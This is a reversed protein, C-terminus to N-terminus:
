GGTAAPTTPPAAPAAEPLVMIVSRLAQEVRLQSQFTAIREDLSGLLRAEDYVMTVGNQRDMEAMTRALGEFYEYLRSDEEEVRMRRIYPTLLEWWFRCQNGGFDWVGKADIHGSRVLSGVKEWYNAIADAAAEPLDARDVGDRLALNIELRARILRESTNERLRLELQDIAAQSRQLRLQRYIALFTVALVLGSLATWFWESGPGIFAMGDTNILKV